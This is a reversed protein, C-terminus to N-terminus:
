FQGLPVFFHLFISIFSSTTFKSGGSGKWYGYINPGMQVWGKGLKMYCGDLGLATLKWWLIVNYLTPDHRRTPTVTFWDPGKRDDDEM